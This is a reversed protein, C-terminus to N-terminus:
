KKEEIIPPTYAPPNVQPYLQQQQQQQIPYPQVPTYMPETLPQNVLQNYVFANGRRYQRVSLCIICAIFFIFFVVGFVISIIIGIALSTNIVSFNNDYSCSLANRDIVLLTSDIQTAFFYHDSISIIDTQYNIKYTCYTNTNTSFDVIGPIYAQYNIYQQNTVNDYIISNIANTLVSYGSYIPNLTGNGSMTYGFINYNAVAYVNNGSLFVDRARNNYFDAVSYFISSGSRSVRYSYLSYKDAALVIYLSTTIMKATIEGPNIL